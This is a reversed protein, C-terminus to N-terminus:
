SVFFWYKTFQGVRRFIRYLESNLHIFYDLLGLFIRAQASKGGIIIDYLRIVKILRAPGFLCLIYTLSYKHRISVVTSYFYNSMYFLFVDIYDVFEMCLLILLSHM